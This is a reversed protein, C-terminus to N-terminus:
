VASRSPIACGLDHRHDAVWRYLRRVFGPVGPVEFLLRLPFGGPLLSMIRPLSEAGAYRRGRPGVLIMARQLEARSLDPMLRPVLPHQYALCAIRGARDWRRLIGIARRCLRCEGDYFLIAEGQM